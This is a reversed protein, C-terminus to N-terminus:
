GLMRAIMKKKNIWKNTENLKIWEGMWKIAEKVWSNIQENMIENMWKEAYRGM